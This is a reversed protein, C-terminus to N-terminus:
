FRLATVQIWEPEILPDYPTTQALQPGREEAVRLPNGPDDRHNIHYIGAAIGLFLGVSSGILVTRFDHTFPYTVAGLATGAAIKYARTTLVARVDRNVAYAPSASAVTFILLLTLFVTKLNLLLGRRRLRSLIAPPTVELDSRHPDM